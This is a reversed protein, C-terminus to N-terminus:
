RARRDSRDIKADTYPRRAIDNRQSSRTRLQWEALALLAQPAALGASDGPRRPGPGALGGVRAVPRQPV